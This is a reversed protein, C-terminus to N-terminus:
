ALGEQECFQFWLPKGGWGIGWGGESTMGEAGLAYWDAWDEDSLPPLRLYEHANAIDKAM